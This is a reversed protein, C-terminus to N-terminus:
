KLNILSMVTGECFSCVKMTDQIKKIKEIHGGIALKKLSNNLSGLIVQTEIDDLGDYTKLQYEGIVNMPNDSKKAVEIINEPVPHNELITSIIEEKMQGNLIRNIKDFNLFEMAEFPDNCDAPINLWVTDNLLNDTSFDNIPRYKYLFKPLNRIKLTQAAEIELESIRPTGLMKIYEEKWNM